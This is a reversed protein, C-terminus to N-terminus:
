SEHVPMVRLNIGSSGFCFLIVLQSQKASLIPHMLEFSLLSHCLCGDVRIVGDVNVFPDSLISSIQNGHSIDRLLVDFHVM